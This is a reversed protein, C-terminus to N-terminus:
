RARRYSRVFGDDIAVVAESVTGIEPDHVVVVVDRDAALGSVGRAIADLAPRRPALWRYRLGIPLSLEARLIQVALAFEGAAPPTAAGAAARVTPLPPSETRSVISVSM